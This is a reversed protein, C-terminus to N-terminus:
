NRRSMAMRSAFIAFYPCLSAGFRPNIELIMPVKGHMKYNFCCLGDFEIARLVEAFLDLHPCPCVHKCIERNKGKVPLEEKFMYRINLSTIIEGGRAILHTAYEERGVIM